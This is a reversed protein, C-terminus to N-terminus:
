CNSLFSLNKLYIEDFKPLLEETIDRANNAIKLAKERIEASESFMIIGQEVSNRCFAATKRNEPIAGLRILAKLGEATSFPEGSFFARQQRSFLELVAAAAAKDSQIARIDSQSVFFDEGIYFLDRDTMIGDGDLVGSELMVAAAMAAGCPSVGASAADGVVEYSLTGDSERRVADIAGKEAPMGSELGSGDFAGTLGFAACTYEGGRNEAICLTKGLDAAICDGEPLTLLSATFRGGVAASIFPVFFVEVDPPLYLAGPLLSQELRSEVAMPAAIGVSKVASSPIGFERMSTVLLKVLAEEVNEATIEGDTLAARAYRRRLGADYFVVSMVNNGIDCAATLEASRESRYKDFFLM